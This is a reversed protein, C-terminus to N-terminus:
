SHFYKIIIIGVKANAVITSAHFLVKTKQSCVFELIEKTGKVNVSRIDNEVRDNKKYQDTFNSKVALHVVADINKSLDSYVDDSWGLKAKTVVGPVIIVKSMDVQELLGKAELVKQLRKLGGNETKGDDRVLCYIREIQSKRSLDRLFYPGMNGTAGTLLVTKVQFELFLTLIYYYYCLSILYIYFICMYLNVFISSVESPKCSPISPVTLEESLKADERILKLLEEHTPIPVDEDGELLEVLKNALQNVTHCDKVSNVTIKARQGLTSQVANKM